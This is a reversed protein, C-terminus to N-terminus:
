PSARMLPVNFAKIPRHFGKLMLDDAPEAGFAEEISAYVKGDILIQGDKADSCLRAALNVVTGIAAYDYRGEYGVRGLTAYGRAIGIGFGLDYGSKRWNVALSAVQERMSVAMKVARLSPDPIPLPANFLVLIGDGAFREVTGEHENVLEGLLRHYDRLVSMVEEPEATETFATFGRLDCFMATVEGRRSELMKESGSSLILEAVKPSLFRKLRSIREIESLQQSVREELTRNWTALQTAQAHVKDHLEKLRLVSKVRAVLALQDLPKTLYEDAGAELGPWWM